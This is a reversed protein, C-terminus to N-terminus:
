CCLVYYSIRMTSEEDRLRNDNGTDYTVVQNLLGNRKV